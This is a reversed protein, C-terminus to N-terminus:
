GTRDIDVNGADLSAWSLGQVNFFCECSTICWGFQGEFHAGTREVQSRTRIAQHIAPANHYTGRPPQYDSRFDTLLKHYLGLIHGSSFTADLSGDYGGGEIFEFLEYISNDLVLMSNNDERTGSLHPLPFSQAALTLQIQHTFAIKAPDDKGRARRKFLFRGRQCDIVVKPSRRSGRPFEQISRVTGLDYHSLCVALEEAGFKERDSTM